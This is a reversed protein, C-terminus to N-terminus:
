ENDSLIAEFRGLLAIKKSGEFPCFSGCDSGESGFLNKWVGVSVRPKLGDSCIIARCILEAYNDNM